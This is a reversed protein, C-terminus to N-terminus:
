STRQAPLLCGVGREPGADRVVDAGVGLLPASPECTSFQRKAQPGRLHHTLRHREPRWTSLEREEEM